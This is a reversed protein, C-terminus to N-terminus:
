PHDIEVLYIKRKAVANIQSYFPRVNSLVWAFYHEQWIHIAEVDVLAVAAGEEEQGDVNLHHINEVILLDKLPLAEPQWSRIELKKLGQAIRQGNPAVISLAKFTRKM